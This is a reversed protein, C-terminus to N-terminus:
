AIPPKLLFLLLNFTYTFTFISPPSSISNPYIFNDGKVLIYTSNFGFHIDCTDGHNCFMEYEIPTCIHENFLNNLYEHNMSFSIALFVIPLILKKFKYLINKYLIRDSIYM